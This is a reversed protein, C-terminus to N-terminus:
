AETVELAALKLYHTEPMGLVEPHCRAQTRRALVKLRKRADAAAESLMAYFASEGVHYSCSATILRGGPALMKLARLNIEKYAALAKPLHSKSKAFAPPDLVIVDFREGAFSLESLLEFANAQKTVVNGFGNMAAGENLVELAAGSADVALVSDARGALHLAFGGHYSFVDLARGFALAGAMVHNERQDLFAGTKQGGYPLALLTVGGESYAIREPVDGYIREQRRPLGELERVPSDNRGLVGRPRYAELLRAVIVPMFAELAAAHQQVVLYAGYKDVTLGPLGDAENHVVRFAEYGNAAGERHQVAADLRRSFFAESVPEQSRTLLRFAIKSRPNYLGQGIVEGSGLATVIAPADPTDKLKKLDSYFVWLHGSELRQL